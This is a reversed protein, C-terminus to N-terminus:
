DFPYDADSDRRNRAVAQADGRGDAPANASRTRRLTRRAAYPASSRGDRPCHVCAPAHRAFSKLGMFALAHEVRERIEPEPVGARRAGFAANDYVDLWPFTADEQFVIAVGEPVQDRVPSGEFLVTGSSAANLGAIVDLLTSKGCGSPGVVSFFEGAELNLSVPGLAHFPAKGKQGAYSRTVDTLAAHIASPARDPM